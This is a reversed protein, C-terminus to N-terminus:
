EASSKQSDVIDKNVTSMLDTLKNQLDLNESKTILLDELASGEIKAAAKNSCYENVVSQACSTANTTFSCVRSGNVEYWGGGSSSACAEITNGDCQSATLSTLCTETPSPVSSTPSFDEECGSLGVVTAIMFFSLILKSTM